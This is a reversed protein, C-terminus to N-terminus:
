TADSATACRLRPSITCRAAVWPSRAIALGLLPASGASRKKAKSSAWGAGVGLVPETSGALGGGVWGGWRAVRERPPEVHSETEDVARHGISQGHEAQQGQEGAAREIRPHREEDHR